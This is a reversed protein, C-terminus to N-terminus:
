WSSASSSAPTTLAELFVTAAVDIRNAMIAALLARSDNGGTLDAAWPLTRLIGDDDSNRNLLILTDSIANIVRTLPDAGYESVDNLVALLPRHAILEPHSSSTNLKLIRGSRLKRM